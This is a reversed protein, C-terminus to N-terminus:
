KLGMGKSIDDTSLAAGAAASAAAKPAAALPATGAASAADAFKGLYEVKAGGRLLKLEDEVLKRKRENLLYQEIAPRAQEENVPQSRSGALVLVQVGKPNQNMLAQGDQLKAIADLRDQPLQEAARTVQDGGFRLDSAKLYEIFEGINKAAALKERLAPVQEAKAEVNIEQLSYIRRDSFLAPRADYYKKIDEPSPKVATDGLKEVAARALVEAKAAELQQMVRPDRDLKLTDAKGLLLQQDILRELILKSAADAEEPRLGRQQQLVFNIQHVTVEDKNVRAATQGAPTDKKAGCGALLVLPTSLAVFGLLRLRRCLTHNALTM